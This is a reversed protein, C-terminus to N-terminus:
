SFASYENRDLGGLKDKCYDPNYYRYLKSFLTLFFGMSDKSNFFKPITLNANAEGDHKWRFLPDDISVRTRKRIFQYAILM